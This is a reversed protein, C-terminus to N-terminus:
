NDMGLKRSELLMQHEEDPAFDCEINYMKRIEEVRKGEWCKAVISCSANFLSEMDLYNSVHMLEFLEEESLSKFFTKYGETTHLEEDQQAKNRQYLQCWEVVKELMKSSVSHLNIYENSATITNPRVDIMRRLANSLSAQSKTLTFRKKDSTRLKVQKLTNKEKNVSTTAKTITTTAVEDVEMSDEDLAARTNVM